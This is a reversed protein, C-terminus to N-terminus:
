FSLKLDFTVYAPQPFGPMVRGFEIAEEFDSRRQRTDIHAFRGTAIVALRAGAVSFKKLTHPSAVYEREAFTFAPDASAPEADAPTAALAAFAALVAGKAIRGM